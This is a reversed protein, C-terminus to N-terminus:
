EIWKEIVVISVLVIQHEPHKKQEKQFFALSQSLVESLDGIPEKQHVSEQVLQALSEYFAITSLMPTMAGPLSLLRVLCAAEHVVSSIALQYRIHIAEVHNLLVPAFITLDKGNWSYLDIIQELDLLSCAPHNIILKLLPIDDLLASAVPHPPIFQSMLSTTLKNPVKNFILQAIQSLLPYSNYQQFISLIEGERMSWLCPILNPLSRISTFFGYVELLRQDSSNTSIIHLFTDAVVVLCEISIIAQKRAEEKKSVWNLIDMLQQIDKESFSEQLIDDVNWQLIPYAAKDAERETEMSRVVYENYTIIAIINGTLHMLRNTQDTQLISRSTETMSETENDIKILSVKKGREEELSEQETKQTVREECRYGRLLRPIIVQLYKELQNGILLEWEDGMDLESRYRRYPSLFPQISDFEVEPKEPDEVEDMRMSPPLLYNMVQITKNLSLRIAPIPYTMAYAINLVGTLVPHQYSCLLSDAEPFLSHVYNSALTLTLDLFGPYVSTKELLALLVKVFRKLIVGAVYVGDSESPQWNWLREDPPIIPNTSPIVPLVRLFMEDGRIVWFLRSLEFHSSLIGSAVLVLLSRM